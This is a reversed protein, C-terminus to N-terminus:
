CSSLTLLSCLDTFMDRSQSKIRHRSLRVCVKEDERVTGLRQEARENQGQRERGCVCVIHSDKGPIRKFIFTNRGLVHRFMETPQSQETNTRRRSWQLKIHRIGGPTEPGPRWRRSCFLMSKMDYDAKVKSVSAGQVCM